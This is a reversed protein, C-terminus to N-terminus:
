SKKLAISIKNEGLYNTKDGTVVIWKKYNEFISLTMLTTDLASM